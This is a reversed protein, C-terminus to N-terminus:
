LISSIAAAFQDQTSTGNQSVRGQTPDVKPTKPESQKAIIAMLSDAAEELEDRNAGNLLKISEAPLGKDAAVEYRLLAIKASQADAQAQKLADSLREQEPKLSKEYEQWKDAAEKFQNAEKARKEWKRAEAKWDTESGQPEEVVEATNTDEVIESNMIEDSM